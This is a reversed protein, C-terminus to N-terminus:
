HGQGGQRQGGGDAGRAAEGTGEGAWVCAEPVAGAAGRVEAPGERDCRAEGPLDGRDELVVSTSGLGTMSDFAAQAQAPAVVEDGNCFYILTPVEPALDSVTNEAYAAFLDPDEDLVDTVYQDIFIAGAAHLLSADESEAGTARRFADLFEASTVEGREYQHQLDSEFVIERVRDPHVSALAALQRCAIGHDFHLLHM